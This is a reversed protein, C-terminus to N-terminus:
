VDLTKGCRACEVERKVVRITERAMAPTVTEPQKGEKVCKFFYQQEFFYPSASAVNLDPNSADISKPLEAERAPGGDYVLLTPKRTCNFDLVGKEFFARYCATFPFGQVTDASGEASVMLDGDYHYQTFSHYFGGQTRNDKYLANVTLAKPKGLMWLIADTDHIHRDFLQMGGREEDLYWNDWGVSVSGVRTMSLTRLAGLEGSDIMNKLYVYEPWFRLVQGIMLIRGTRKQCEIMQDCLEVNLSMPKECFVDYGAEMAMISYDAHHFTPCIVFVIDFGGASILAAGDEYTKVNLEKEALERREPVMDAVAVLEVGEHKNVLLAHSRGMGGYGILGVKM